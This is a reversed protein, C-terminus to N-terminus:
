FIIIMSKSVQTIRAIQGNMKNIFDNQISLYETTLLELKVLIFDPDNPNM